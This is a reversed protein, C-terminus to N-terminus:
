KVLELIRRFEPAAADRLMEFIAMEVSTIVAGSERMKDLGALWDSEQRSSVADAAIHVRYGSELLDHATQNVCIHTEVGCVLVSRRGTEDLAAVFEEAGCCSFTMKDIRGPGPLAQAVEPVVDGMRAQNQITALVPLGLAKAAEVIKIVNTATREREFIGRLFPEQMDVVVLVADDRDLVNPHM